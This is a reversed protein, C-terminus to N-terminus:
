DSICSIKLHFDQKCNRSLRASGSFKNGIQVPHVYWTPRRILRQLGSVEHEEGGEAGTYRESSRM